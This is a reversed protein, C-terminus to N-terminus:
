RRRRRFAPRARASSSGSRMGLRSRFTLHPLDPDRRSGLSRRLVRLRNGPGAYAFGGLPKLIRLAYLAGDDNSRVSWSTVRGGVPSTLPLFESGTAVARQVGVCGENACFAYIDQPRQLSTGIKLSDAAASTPLACVMAIVSIWLMGRRFM